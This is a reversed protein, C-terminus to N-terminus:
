LEVLTEASMYLRCGHHYIGSLDHEAGCGAGIQQLLLWQLLRTLCSNCGEAAAAVMVESPVPDPM